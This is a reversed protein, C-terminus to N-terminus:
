QVIEVFRSVCVGFANALPQRTTQLLQHFVTSEARIGQPQFTADRSVGDPARLRAVSLATREDGKVELVDPPLSLMARSSLKWEAKWDGRLGTECWATSERTNPLPTNQRFTGEHDERRRPISNAAAAIKKSYDAM